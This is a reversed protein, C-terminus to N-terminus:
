QMLDGFAQRFLHSKWSRGFSTQTKQLRIQSEWSSWLAPAATLQWAGSTMYLVIDWFCSRISFKVPLWNRKFIIQSIHYRRYTKAIVRAAANQVRPLRKILISPLGCLLTAATLNPSPRSFSSMQRWIRYKELAASTRCTFYSYRCVSNVHAEMTGNYSDNMVSTM